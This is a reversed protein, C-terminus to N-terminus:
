THCTLTNLELCSGDTPSERSSETVPSRREVSILSVGGAPSTSSMVSGCAQPQNEQLPSSNAKNGEREYISPEETVLPLYLCDPAVPSPLALVPTLGVFKVINVAPGLLCTLCGYNYYNYYVGHM